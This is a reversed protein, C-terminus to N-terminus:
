FGAPASSNEAALAAAAIHGGYIFVLQRPKRTPPRSVELIM